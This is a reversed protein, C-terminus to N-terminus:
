GGENLRRANNSLYDEHHQLVASKSMDETRKCYMLVRGKGCSSLGAASEPACAVARLLWMSETPRGEPQPRFLKLFCPPRLQALQQPRGTATSIDFVLAGANCHSRVPLTM